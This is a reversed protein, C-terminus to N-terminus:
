SSDKGNFWGYLTGSIEMDALFTITNVKGYRVSICPIILPHREPLPPLNRRDIRTLPQISAQPPFTKDYAMQFVLPQKTSLISLVGDRNKIISAHSSSFEKAVVYKFFATTKPSALPDRAGSSKASRACMSTSTTQMTRSPVEGLREEPMGQLLLQRKQMWRMDESDGCQPVYKENFDYYLKVSAHVVRLLHPLGWHEGHTPPLNDVLDRVVTTLLVRELRKLFPRHVAHLEIEQLLSKIGTTVRENERYPSCRLMSPILDNNILEFIWSYDGAIDHSYALMTGFICILTNEITSRNQSRHPPAPLSVTFALAHCLDRMIRESPLFTYLEPVRSWLATMVSLAESISGLWPLGGTLVMRVPFFLMLAVHVKTEGTVMSLMSVDSIPSRLLAVLVRAQAEVDEVLGFDGTPRGAQKIWINVSFELVGKTAFLEPNEPFDPPSLHIFLHEINIVIDLRDRPMHVRACLEGRVQYNFNYLYVMWSFVNPWFTLINDRVGALSGRNRLAIDLGEIATAVVCHRYRRDPPCDKEAVQVLPPHPSFQCLWIDLVRPHPSWKPQVLLATRLQGLDQLSAAPRAALRAIAFAM